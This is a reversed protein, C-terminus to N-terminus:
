QATDGLGLGLNALGGSNMIMSSAISGEIAVVLISLIMCTAFSYKFIPRSLIPWLLDLSSLFRVIRRLLFLQTIFASLIGLFPSVFFLPNPSLFKSINM